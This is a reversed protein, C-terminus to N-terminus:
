NDRVCRLVAGDSKLLSGGYLTTGTLERAYTKMSSFQTASWFYSDTGVFLFDSGEMYGSPLASFGFEDTNTEGIWASAEKLCSGVTSSGLTDVRNALLTWESYEPIHWGTPCIGQYLEVDGSWSMYEYTSDIAMVTTWNYYRGYVSCDSDEDGCWSGVGDLTDYALNEAMWVQDGIVTYRYTRGDRSDTFSGCTGLTECSASSQTGTSSSSSSSLLAARSSLQSSSVSDLREAVSSSIAVHSSSSDESSPTGTSSDDCSLIALVVVSFMQLFRKM